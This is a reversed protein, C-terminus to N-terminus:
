RRRVFDVSDYGHRAHDFIHPYFDSDRRWRDGNFLSKWKRNLPRRRSNRYDALTPCHRYHWPRALWPRLHLPQRQLQTALENREITIEVQPKRLRWKSNPRRGVDCFTQRYRCHWIWTPRPRFHPPSTSMADNDWATQFNSGSGNEPQWRPRHAFNSPSPCLQVGERLFRKPTDGRSFKSIRCEFSHM